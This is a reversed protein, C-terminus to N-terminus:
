TTWPRWLACAATVAPRGVGEFLGDVITEVASIITSGTTWVDDVILLSRCGSVLASEVRPDVAFEPAGGTHAREAQSLNDVRILLPVAPIVLRRAMAKAYLSAHEFGRERVHKKTTPVWTVLDPVVGRDRIGVVLRDAIWGLASRQNHSKLKRVLGSSLEDYVAAYVLSDVLTPRGANLTGAVGVPEPTRVGRNGLPAYRYQSRCRRCPGDSVRDCSACRGGFALATIGAFPHLM